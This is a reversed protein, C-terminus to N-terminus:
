KVSSAAADVERGTYVPIWAHGLNVTILNFRVHYDLIITAYPACHFAIGDFRIAVGPFIRGQARLFVDCGYRGVVERFGLSVNHM